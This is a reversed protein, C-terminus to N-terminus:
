IGGRDNFMAQAVIMIRVVTDSENLHNCHCRWEGNHEVSSIVCTTNFSNIKM